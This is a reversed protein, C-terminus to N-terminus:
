GDRNSWAGSSCWDKWDMYSSAKNVLPNLVNALSEIAARVERDARVETWPISSHPEALFDLISLIWDKWDLVSRVIRSAGRYTEVVSKMVVQIVGCDSLDKVFFEFGKVNETTEQTKNKHFMNRRESAM